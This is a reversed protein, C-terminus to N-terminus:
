KKNFDFIKLNIQEYKPYFHKKRVIFYETLFDKFNLIKNKLKNKNINIISEEDLDNIDKFEYISNLQSDIEKEIVFSNYSGIIKKFFIV